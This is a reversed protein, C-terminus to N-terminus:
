EKNEPELTINWGDPIGFWKRTGECISQSCLDNNMRSRNTYHEILDILNPEKGKAREKEYFQKALNTRIVPVTALTLSGDCLPKYDRIETPIFTASSGINGEIDHVYADLYDESINIFLAGCSAINSMLGVYARYSGVYANRYWARDGGSDVVGGLVIFQKVRVGLEIFKKLRDDISADPFEALAIFVSNGSAHKAVLDGIPPFAKDSVIIDAGTSELLGDVVRVSDEHLPAPHRRFVRPDAFIM